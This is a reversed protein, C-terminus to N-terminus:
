RYLNALEQTETMSAAVDQARHARFADREAALRETLTQTLNILQRARLASTEVDATM